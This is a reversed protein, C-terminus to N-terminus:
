RPSVVPSLPEAVLTSAEVQGPHAFLREVYKARIWAEKRARRLTAVLSVLDRSIGGSRLFPLLFGDTGPTLPCRSAPRGSM